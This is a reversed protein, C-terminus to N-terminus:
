FHFVAGEEGRLNLLDEISEIPVESLYKDYLSAAITTVQSGTDKLGRCLTGNM